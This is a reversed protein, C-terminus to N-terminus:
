VIEKENEGLKRFIEKFTQKGSEGQMVIGREGGQLGSQVNWIKYNIKQLFNIKQFFCEKGTQIFM